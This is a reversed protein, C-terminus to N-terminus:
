AFMGLELVHDIYIAADRIDFIFSFLIVFTILGTWRAFWSKEKLFSRNKLLIILAPTWFVLHILAILGSFAPMGIGNTLVGTLIFGAVIFGMVWRAQVTKVAMGLGVLFTGMMFGIWVAVWTPSNAMGEGDFIELAGNGHVADQANASLGFNLGMLALLAIPKTLKQYRM